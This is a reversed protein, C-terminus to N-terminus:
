ETQRHRGLAALLLMGGVGLAFLLPRTLVPAAAHVGLYDLVALQNQPNFPGLYWLVPYIVEFAKSSRNWIGLMLALTPIFLVALLWAPLELTEGHIARGLLAGSMGLATFGVGALWSSSLQRIAAHATPQILQGTHHRADREGLKSWILVPWIGMLMWGMQRLNPTPAIVCGIWLLAAGAWWYWAVGNVLLRGELELLRGLNFHFRRGSTLRTLRIEPRPEAPDSIKELQDGDAGAVAARKPKGVNPNSDFRKFFCLGSLVMGLSLGVWLLRQAILGATWEMGPWVFTGLVRNGIMALVFSGDYTPHAALMSAKMSTGVLSLGIVDLWPQGSMLGAILLFTFVFFYLLNGFDGKLWSVTEFFLALAAVLAMMPMAIFLLPALMAGLRVQPDEGHLLQMLIGALGLIAVLTGLVCLNSVWKALLYDLRSLSTTAFIQGVGTKEDRTLSNKVLFFGLLGLFFSCSLAMLSGVWASNYIGRYNQLSILIQGSNVGYGLYVALCLTILFGSQRTRELFDAKVIAGLIEVKKM